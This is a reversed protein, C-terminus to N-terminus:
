TERLDNDTEAYIRKAEEALRRIFVESPNSPNM